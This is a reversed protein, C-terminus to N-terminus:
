RQLLRYPSLIGSRLSRYISVLAGVTWLSWLIIQVMQLIFDRLTYENEDEIKYRILYLAIGSFMIFFIPTISEDLALEHIPSETYLGRPITENPRRRSRPRSNVGEAEAGGNNNDNENISPGLDSQSAHFMAHVTIRDDGGLRNYLEELDESNDLASGQCIIKTSIGRSTLDYDGSLALNLERKLDSITLTENNERLPVDIDINPHSQLNVGDRLTIGAIQLHRSGFCSVRFSLIEGRQHVM